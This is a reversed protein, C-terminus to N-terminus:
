TPSLPHLDLNDSDILTQLEEYDVCASLSRMIEKAEEFTNVQWFCDSDPIFTARSVQSPIPDGGFYLDAIKGLGLQKRAERGGVGIIELAGPTGLTWYRMDAIGFFAGHQKQIEVLGQEFAKLYVTACEENWSGLPRVYLVQGVTFMSFQGHGSLQM